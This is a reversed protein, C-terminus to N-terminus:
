AAMRLIASVAIYSALLCPVPLVEKYIGLCSYLFEFLELYQLSKPLIEMNKHIALAQRVTVYYIHSFRYGFYIPRSVKCDAPSWDHGGTM